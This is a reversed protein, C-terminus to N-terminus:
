DRRLGVDHLVAIDVGAGTVLRDNSWVFLWRVSVEVSAGRANEGETIHLGGSNEYGFM